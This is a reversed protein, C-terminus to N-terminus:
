FTKVLIGWYLKLTYYRLCLQATDLFGSRFRTGTRTGTSLFSLPIFFVSYINTSNTSQFYNKIFDLTMLKTVPVVVVLLITFYQRNCLSLLEGEKFKQNGKAKEALSLEPNIYALREKEKIM